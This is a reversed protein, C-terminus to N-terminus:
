KIHILIYANLFMRATTSGVEYSRRHAQTAQTVPSAPAGPGFVVGASSSTGVDVSPGVGASASPDPMDTFGGPPPLYGAYFNSMDEMSPPDPMQDEEGSSPRTDIDMPFGRQEMLADLRHGAGIDDLNGRCTQLMFKGIKKSARSVMLKLGYAAQKLIREVQM